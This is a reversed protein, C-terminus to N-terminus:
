PWLYSGPHYGPVEYKDLEVPNTEVQTILTAGEPEAHLVEYVDMRIRYTGMVTTSISTFPFVITVVSDATPPELLAGTTSTFGRLGDPVVHGEENILVIMGFHYVAPNYPLLSLKGVVYPSLVTGVQAQAPPQVAIAAEAM